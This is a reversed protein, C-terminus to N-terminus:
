EHCVTVCPILKPPTVEPMSEAQIGLEKFLILDDMKDANPTVLLRKNGHHVSNAGAMFCLTQMTKSMHFRGGSLRVYAKPMMIRALAICRIFALENMPPMEGLPTGPIAALVNLVVSEPHPNKNALTKLLEFRDELEEGMNLIGGTCLNLGAQRVNQHTTLRSQYTRTTSLKPFYRESTELNHNYFDLGGNKLAQAQELTLTGVTICTELGLAKVAQVLTIIKALQRKTPTRYSAAMCFRTAGNKKARKAELLVKEVDMLPEKKVGTDYRASQSCWKCDEPCGGQKINLLTSIQLTNAKFCARHLQQAQFLLDMFPLEYLTQIDHLSWNHRIVPNYNLCTEKRTLHPNVHNMM